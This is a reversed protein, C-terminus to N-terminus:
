FYVSWHCTSGAKNMQNVRNTAAAFIGNSSSASTAPVYCFKLLGSKKSIQPKNVHWILFNLKATQNMKHLHHFYFWEYITKKFICDIEIELSVCPNM